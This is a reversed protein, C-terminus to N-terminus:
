TIIILIYLIHTYFYVENKMFKKKMRDTTLPIGVTSTLPNIEIFHFM